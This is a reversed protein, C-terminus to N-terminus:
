SVPALTLTQKTATRVADPTSPWVFTRGKVWADLQDLYHGNGPHGSQGTQNVWRSRNLDALDVVMRMSPAMAVNFRGGTEVWTFANVASSGGPVEIPGENLLPYLLAMGRSAGLPTETLVLRHLRGWSWATPDRGLSSTLRARAQMIAQKIIEDRTEVVSATRVDDWWPDNPRKLLTRVVEFWRGGNDPLSTKPLEDNFALDLLSAWVANFYAAAASDVPQDGNWGRLLRVAETYFPDNIKATLLLPVLEVAMPNRTDAQVAELDTVAFRHGQAIRASLLDRIRQSRYGYDVVAPVTAKDAPMVAQNAAVIFGERPDLTSPLDAPAVYGKWDYASTWGPLPWTGDTPVTASRAAGAAAAATAGDGNDASANTSPSKSKSKPVSRNKATGKPTSKPQGTSLDSTTAQRIPIRGLAQYGIHGDVDAYIMNQAPAGMRLAAQRFARFDGAANIGFVADMDHGPALATWALAVAYGDGRSLATGSSPALRGVEALPFMVDSLLPGHPGTRVTLTQSPAGAVAITETRATLPVLAGDREVQDGSVKELFLDTVGAGLSTLGWAIRANHGIIVGPVGAFSFGSVDFPCSSSVARCHLGVQYWVGPLGPALHPDNALLPQGTTTLAGSLVWSNSGIGIGIGAGLGGGALGTPIATLATDARTFAGQASKDLLDDDIKDDRSSRAVAAAPRVATRAPTGSPASTDPHGPKTTDPALIPTHQGYPYDPYLRDVRGVDRVAAFALVRDIKDTDNGGLDWALAKFWALSDVPTWPEIRPMPHDLGLLGYVLSLQSASRSRLYDNVGQAYAELYHRTAPDAQELEAQAIRRWGLTRVVRDANLADPNDGVLEALRGATIHRRWDMEFFRDQAHVYGQARFLDEASDAYLQPVGQADRMVTVQSVLGALVIRGEAAPFPRRVLTVATGLGVVLLAVLLVAVGVLSRRVIRPTLVLRTPVFAAYHRRLSM